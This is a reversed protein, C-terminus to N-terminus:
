SHNDAMTASGGRALRQRVLATQGTGRCDVGTSTSSVEPEDSILPRSKVARWDDEEEEESSPKREKEKSNESKSSFAGGRLGAVTNQRRVLSGCEARQAGDVGGLKRAV